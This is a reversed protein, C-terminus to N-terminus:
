LQRLVVPLYSALPSYGQVLLSSEDSLDDQPAYIAELMFPRNPAPMFATNITQAHLSTSAGFLVDFTETSNPALSLADESLNAILQMGSTATKALDATELAQPPEYLWLSTVTMTEANTNTLRVSLKRPTSWDWQLGLTHPKPQVASGNSEWVFSSIGNPANNCFGVRAVEAFALSGGFLHIATVNARVSPSVTVGIFPNDPGIYLDSASGSGSPDGFSLNLGSVDGATNNRLLWSYCFRDQAALAAARAPHPLAHTATASLAMLVGCSAFRVLRTRMAKHM